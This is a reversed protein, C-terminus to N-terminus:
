LYVDDKFKSLSKIFDISERKAKESWNINKKFEPESLLELKYKLHYSDNISFSVIYETELIKNISVPYIVCHWDNEEFIINNQDEFNVILPKSLYIIKWEKTDIMCLFPLYYNYKFGGINLRETFITTHVLGIYYEDKYQVLNTSGRICLLNENLKISDNKEKYEIKCKGEPNFDYHLITLPDYSYVFYLKNNKVFPSWNKEKYHMNEGEIWLKIPKFEEYKSICMIRGWNEYNCINFIIYIENQLIFLRPDEAQLDLGLIDYKNDKNNSKLLGNLYNDFNVRECYYEIEDKVCISKM